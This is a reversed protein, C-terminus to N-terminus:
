LPLDEGAEYPASLVEKEQEAEGQWQAVASNKLLFELYTQSATSLEVGYTRFRMAMPAYMCDALSFKGFLYDGASQYKSRAESWLQDVRKCETLAQPTFELKRRARCNMPLQSRIATFSSHMESCYSRCQARQQLDEPLAAGALYKESVYELIALSDWISFKGDILVPVKLTPSYRALEKEFGDIFLPVQVEEFPIEFHRLLIWPRMSWSSYNKNGIVLQMCLIGFQIRLPVLTAEALLITPSYGFEIVASLRSNVLM